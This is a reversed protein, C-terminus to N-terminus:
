SSQTKNTFATSHKDYIQNKENKKMQKCHVTKAHGALAVDYGGEEVFGAKRRDNEVVRWGGAHPVFRPPACAKGHRRILHNAISPQGHKLKQACAGCNGHVLQPQHEDAVALHALGAQLARQCRRTV